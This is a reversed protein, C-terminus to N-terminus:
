GAHTEADRSPKAKAFNAVGNEDRWVTLFHSVPNGNLMHRVLSVFQKKTLLTDITVPPQRVVKGPLLPETSIDEAVSIAASGTM